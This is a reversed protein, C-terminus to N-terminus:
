NKRLLKPGLNGAWDNIKQWDRMDGEPTGIFNKIIVVEIFNLRSYDLKGAFLGTDIFYLEARLPELYSAAKKRNEETDERLIMCVIFCAVTIKKLEDKNTKVFDTVEPLVAGRRIASGLVVAQYGNLSSINKIPKVDVLLGDEALKKGIAQAVDITSGARTAYAVLIKPTASNKKGYSNELLEIDSSSCPKSPISLSVFVVVLLFFCILFFLNIQRSNNCVNDTKILPQKM